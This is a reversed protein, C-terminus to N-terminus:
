LLIPSFSQERAIKQALQAATDYVKNFLFPGMSIRKVGLRELEKFDPLHPMCMVNIPLATGNVVEEIDQRDTICPVFIGDAGANEYAKIRTMTEDLALPMGLLFADTRINLFLKRNNRSLHNAIASIIKKFDNASQLERTAGAVTDELNIGVVGADHLKEINTIIGDITRSYGGEMDVSFPIHVSEVVRKAIHLLWDFPLREGDEYGLSTSLAHSSVGIAKYGCAELVKASNVDWINGLLLPSASRHLQSFTEYYSM